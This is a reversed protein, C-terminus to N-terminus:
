NKQEHRKDALDLEIFVTTGKQPESGITFHGNMSNVRTQLNHLGIGRRVENEDFGIGNDEVTVTLLQDDHIFIQVLACTAAAHQIVNKLLEQVIRYINLKVDQSIKDFSGYSRFDVLLKNSEQVSSCYAGIADPLTQKLLVEPMLNHATKRVEDGMQHLLAMAEKYAPLTTIEKKDHHISMLRMMAASLIGGIGDHLERAIRGRENEEGQVVGKLISITNEQQLAKIQQEQMRQKQKSNRYIALVIIALLVISGAITIIWINKNIIKSKQQAIMLENKVIQKDKEATRYKIEMHNLTRAKEINTLSDKLSTLTDMYALAKDYRGSSRYVTVLKSYCNIYNDKINHAKTEALASLLIAEAERYRGSRTLADGLSYSAEVVLYDYRNRALDIAMHLCTVAKDYEGTEIAVKGLYSYAKAQLDIKGMQKGIQMVEAFCREASDPVHAKTYHEGIYILADALQYNWKGMRAMAEAERFFPLAKRPQSMRVHVVGLSNYINVTIRTPTSSVRQIEQLSRYYYESATIYDGESFYSEGINNYCWATADIQTSKAAWPLAAICYNREQVYDEKEYYKIGTVMLAWFAGDAYNADESLRLLWTFAIIASDPDLIKNYVTRLQNIAATDIGPRQAYGDACQGILLIFLFIKCFLSRSYLM